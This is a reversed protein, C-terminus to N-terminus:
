YVMIMNTYRQQLVKLGADLLLTNLILPSHRIVNEALKLLSIVRRHKVTNAQYKHHIGKNE